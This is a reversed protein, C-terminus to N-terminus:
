DGNEKCTHKIADIIYQLYEDGPTKFPDQDPTISANEIKNAMVTAVAVKDLPSDGKGKKLKSILAKMFNPDWENTEENRKFSKTRSHVEAVSEKFLESLSSKFLCWELTWEKAVNLTINTQDLNGIKKKIQALKSAAEAGDFTGDDSEPRNDLDTVIAVPVNIKKEDKRLFIRAFHLYATSGVNVISVEKASLDYGLKKAIAPILIQEAWGEVIIVGKAFFLNSKTVDLFHELYKHDNEDLRTNKGLPYVDNGNCLILENLKVKSALNPSHTTLIFQVNKEKQLAEIVKMQAQPHLHAELEEIMCLKLGDWQKKLHLLEVAMFLRNLTGLGLNSMGDIGLSIKELISKIEEDSLTINSKYQDSIFASLFSDIVDKIQKKNSPKGGENEESKNFWEKIEKNANKFNAVFPHVIGDKEKFLDHEKLIQSLRSNKKAILESDADRLARLYTTKLYDRAEADLTYGVDDMGAKVDSPLIRDKNKEVQLILKLIPKAQEGDGEWGLWEIFNKAEEPELEALILEIRLKDTGKHFDKEEVRIWEYAHTKLVLKVADLIATKGSDNEGILVNLGKKFEVHLHPKSLDFEGNGFKRFNWLKLERLFM